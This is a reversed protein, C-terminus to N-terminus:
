FPSFKARNKHQMGFWTDLSHLRAKLNEVITCHITDSFGSDFFYKIINELSDIFFILYYTVLNTHFPTVSICYNLQISNRYFQCSPLSHTVFTFYNQFMWWAHYFHGSLNVLWWGTNAYLIFIYIFLPNEHFNRQIEVLHSRCFVAIRQSQSFCLADYCCYKKWYM